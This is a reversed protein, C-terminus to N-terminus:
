WLGKKRERELVNYDEWAKNFLIGLCLVWALLYFWLLLAAVSSLSGYIIDYTTARGIYISYIYTVLLIGASAFIAGPLQSKLPKKVQPMIYYNFLVMLFFAGLAIPWRIRLWVETGEGELGVLDFVLQLIQEGYVLVLIGAMVTVLTFITVPVAKLRDIIFGKGTYEGDSFTFNAIRMLSFQSRSAAWILIIALIVNTGYATEYTIAGIVSEIMKDDGRETLWSIASKLSEGFVAGLIQSILVLMPVISLTFYFSLQAAMGQYYPNSFRKIVLLVLVFIKKMVGKTRM